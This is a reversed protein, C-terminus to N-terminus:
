DEITSCDDPERASIDAYHRCKAYRVLTSVLNDNRRYNHRFRDSTTGTIRRDM